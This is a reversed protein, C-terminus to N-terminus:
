IINQVIYYVLYQIYTIDQYHYLNEYNVDLNTYM